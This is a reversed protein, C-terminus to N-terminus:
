SFVVPPMQRRRALVANVEPMSTPRDPHTSAQALQVTGYDNQVQLARDTVRSLLDLLYQRAITRVCWAIDDPATTTLGATGAIVVNRGGTATAFTGTDRVIVGEPRLVWGTTTQAVTDVTASTVTRPYLVPHGEDDVLRIRATGTGDLTATFAKATWSTGTYRDVLEEAWDIAENITDDSYVASDALGELARLDTLASYDGM